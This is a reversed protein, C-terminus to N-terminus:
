GNEESTGRYFEQLAFCASTMDKQEVDYGTSHWYVLKDPLADGFSRTKRKAPSTGAAKSALIASAVEM